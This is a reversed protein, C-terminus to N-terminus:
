LVDIAHVAVRFDALRQAAEERTLTGAYELELSQALDPAYGHAGPDVEAGAWTYTLAMIARPFKPSSWVHTVRTGEAASRMEEELRRYRDIIESM